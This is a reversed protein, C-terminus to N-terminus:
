RKPAAIDAGPTKSNELSIPKFKMDVELRQEDFWQAEKFAGDNGVKPVVLAQNCGSLYTVFGTVVGNFGTIKDKVKSGLKIMNAIEDQYGPTM